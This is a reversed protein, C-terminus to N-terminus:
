VPKTTANSGSKTGRNDSRNNQYLYDDSELWLKNNGNCNQMSTQIENYLHELSVAKPIFSMVMLQARDLPGKLRNMVKDAKELDGRARWNEAGNFIARKIDRWEEEIHCM